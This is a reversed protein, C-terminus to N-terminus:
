EELVAVMAKRISERKDKDARSKRKPEWGRKPGSPIFSQFNPAAKQHARLSSRSLATKRWHFNLSGSWSTRSGSLGIEHYRKIDKYSYFPEHWVWFRDGAKFVTSRIIGTVAYEDVFEEYTSEEAKKFHTERPFVTKMFIKTSVSGPCYRDPRREGAPQGIDSLPSRYFSYSVSSMRAEQVFLLTFGLLLAIKRINVSDGQAARLEPEV